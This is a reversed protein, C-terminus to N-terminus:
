GYFQLYFDVARRVFEAITWGRKKRIREIKKMAADGVRGYLRATIKNVLGRSPRGSGQWNKVRMLEAFKVREDNTWSVKNGSYDTRLRQRITGHWNNL